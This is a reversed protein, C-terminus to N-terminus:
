QKVGVMVETIPLIRFTGEPLDIDIGSQALYYIGDGVYFHGDKFEKQDKITGVAVIEGYSYKQASPVALISGNDPLKMPKVLLRNLGPYAKTM